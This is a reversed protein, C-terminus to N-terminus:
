ESQEQLTKRSLAEVDYLMAAPVGYAEELATPTLVEDVSGLDIRRDPYFLMVTDAYKRTLSLEHLSVIVSVGRARHLDRFFELAREKQAPEMAFVPEDMMIVQSGYLASFALLVRQTEGKSLGGLTRQRLGALQFAELVDTFFVQGLARFNGNGYVTELLSGVSEGAEGSDEFEMNQYIFSCLLNREHEREPTLGEGPAGSSDKWVGSVIRTNQGLLEVRGASPMIRGGALLMFTSKGSGNPGTLSIFGEPIDATFGSFVPKVATGDAYRAIEGTDPDPWTFAVDQFHLLPPNENMDTFYLM